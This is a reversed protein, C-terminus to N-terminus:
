LFAGRVHANYAPINHVSDSSPVVEQLSKDCIQNYKAHGIAELLNLPQQSTKLYIKLVSFLILSESDIRSGNAYCKRNETNCKKTDSEYM